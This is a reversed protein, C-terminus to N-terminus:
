WFTTSDEKVVCIIM